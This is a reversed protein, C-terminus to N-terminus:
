RGRGGRIPMPLVTEGCPAVKAELEEIQLEIEIGEKKTMPDMRNTRKKTQVEQEPMKGRIRRGPKLAM